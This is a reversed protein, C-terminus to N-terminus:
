NLNDKILEWIEPTEFGRRWSAVGALDYEHILELRKSVSEETELWTRHKKGNDEYEAYYQESDEDYTIEADHEELINHIGEMSYAGVHETNGEEDEAWLRTYFPIGLLLKESPVQELIRELNNRVWPLSAVSGANPAGRWHEDYAMVAVYDVTESLAVRDYSQSWNESRSIFTVDVSVVLGQERLFPTLERVFQTYYDRDKLHINEFDLNIGDLEYLQAFLTLEYIANKRAEPDRLFEHTLDPDFTNSFLAWVQMNQDHAWEVFSKEAQNTLNGEKDRLHFWTPSIVNVGPLEPMDDPPPTNQFVHEWTLNIYEGLPVDPPPAKEDRPDPKRIHVEGLSIDQDSVFGLYGKNTRIYYWNGQQHYINVEEGEPLKDIIGSRMGPSERVTTDEPRTYGTLVSQEMDDLIFLHDTEQYSVKVPYLQEMINGPLFPRDDVMKPSFDLTIDEDNIRATLQDTKMQFVKDHTTVTLYGHPEDFHIYPDFYDQIFDKSFYAQGDKKLADGTGLDKDEFIIRPHESEPYPDVWERGPAMYLWYGLSLGLASVIMFVVVIKIRRLKINVNYAQFMM